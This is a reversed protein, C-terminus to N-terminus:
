ANGVREKVLKVTEPRNLDKTWKSNINDLADMTESM